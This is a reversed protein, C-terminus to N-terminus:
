VKPSKLIVLFNMIKEYGMDFKVASIHETQFISIFSHRTIAVMILSVCYSITLHLDCFQKTCGFSQVTEVLIKFKCSQLSSEDFIFFFFLNQFISGHVKLYIDFKPLVIEHVALFSKGLASIASITPLYNYLQAGVICWENLFLMKDLPLSIVM